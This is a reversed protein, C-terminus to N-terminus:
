KEILNKHIIMRIKIGNIYYVEKRLNLLNRNELEKKQEKM